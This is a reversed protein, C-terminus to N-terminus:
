CEIRHELDQKFETMKKAAKESSLGSFYEMADPDKLMEKWVEKRLEEVMEEVSVTMLKVTLTAGADIGNDEVTAENDLKGRFFAEVRACGLLSELQPGLPLNGSLLTSKEGEETKVIVPIVSGELRAIDQDMMQEMYDAMARWSQGM